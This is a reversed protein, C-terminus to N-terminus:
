LSSQIGAKDLPKLLVVCDTGDRHGIAVIEGRDNIALAQVLECNCEPPILANLDHMVGHEYLFAHYTEDGEVLAGGVIAGADNIGRASSAAGGLTGLDTRGTSTLRIARLEGKGNVWQGAYEERNNLGHLVGDLALPVIEYRRDRPKM